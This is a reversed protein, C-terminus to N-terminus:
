GTKVDIRKSGGKAETKKLTVHLVGKKFTAEVDEESVSVPVPIRRHFSGYSREMRHVGREKTEHEERKEGKIVLGDDDLSVEIDKEDMGPLEAKVVIEDDTETVDVSPMFGGQVRGPLDLGVGTVFSEFLRNMERQLSTFPDYYEGRRELETSEGRRRFPIIDKMTM